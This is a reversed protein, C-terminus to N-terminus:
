GRCVMSTPTTPQRGAAIGHPMSTLTTTRYPVRVVFFRSLRRPLTPDAKLNSDPRIRGDRQIQALFGSSDTFSLNQTMDCLIKPM